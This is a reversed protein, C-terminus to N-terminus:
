LESRADGRLRAVEEELAEVREFLTYAAIHLQTLMESMSVVRQSTRHNWQMQILRARFAEQQVPDPIAALQQPLGEAAKDLRQEMAMLDAAESIADRQMKEVIARWDVREPQESMTPVTCVTV